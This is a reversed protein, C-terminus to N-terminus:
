WEKWQSLNYRIFKQHKRATKKIIKIKKMMFLKITNPPVITVSRIYLTNKHFGTPESTFHCHLLDTRMIHICFTQRRISKPQGVITHPIEIIASHVM